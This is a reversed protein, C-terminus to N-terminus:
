LIGGVENCFYNIQNKRYLKQQTLFFVIEIQKNTKHLRKKRKDNQQKKDGERSWWCVFFVKLHFRCTQAHIKRKSFLKM